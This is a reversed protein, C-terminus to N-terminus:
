RSPGNAPTEVSATAAAHTRAVIDRQVVSGGIRHLDDIVGALLEAAAAMDGARFARIGAVLPRVVTGFTKGNFSRGDHDTMALGNWFREAARGSTSAHAMAAHMDLFGCTHREGVRDWLDALASWRTDVSGASTALEIRWLLSTADSLGFPTTSTLREDLVRMASSGDGHNVLRLGVHWWIHNVLLNQTSWREATGALLALSDDNRGQNEYVHALAHRAWLDDADIDLARRGHQEAEDDRGVEELSLALQGHAIGAERSAPAAASIARAAANLRPQDTGTHLCMDHVMRGAVIDNPNRQHAEDWMAIADDFAGAVARRVAEVHAREADTVREFRRDLRGLDNVIAPHTPAVGGMIRLAIALVAGMTMREDSANLPDLLAVPDGTFTFLQDVASRYTTTSEPGGASVAMGLEVLERDTAAGNM